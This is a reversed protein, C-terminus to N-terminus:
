PRRMLHDYCAKVHRADALANHHGARQAPLEVSGCESILHQLDHTWMPIGPPLVIMPGFLQALVVHDYAGYDAWLEVDSYSTIFERVDRAIRDRCLVALDSQNYLWRKPMQMRAGGYAKPLGPVVNAMLWPNKRIRRTPMERNVAYYEGGDDAVLGISILAITRGDEIFETDYFIRTM